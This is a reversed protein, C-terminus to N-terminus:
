GRLLKLEKELRELERGVNLATKVKSQYETLNKLTRDETWKTFAKEIIPKLRELDDIWLQITIKVAKIRFNIDRLDKRM